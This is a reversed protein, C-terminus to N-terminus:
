AEVNSDELAPSRTNINSNLDQVQVVQCHGRFAVCDNHIGQLSVKANFESDLLVNSSKMDRHLVPPNCNEHLYELGRSIDLAIKLRTHWTLASGRSTGTLAAVTSWSGLSSLGPNISKTNLGRFTDPPSLGADHHPFSFTSLFEFM